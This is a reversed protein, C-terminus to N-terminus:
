RTVIRRLDAIEEDVQSNDSVYRGVASRLHKTFCRKANALLNIAQRPTEFGFRQVLVSYDIPEAGELMPEVVRLCFVDWIDRRGRAHCEAEMLRLADQVIQQVWEQEFRDIGSDHCLSSILAEDIGATMARAAYEGRLKTTIYNNLSKLVFNRFKGRERDAHRLLGAALVKDAVFGQLLDDALDTPVRRTNVLFARLAPLYMLLLDSLAQQRVLDNSAAARGVLSWHTQPFRSRKEQEYSM